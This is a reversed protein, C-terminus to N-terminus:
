TFCDFAVHDMCALADEVGFGLGGVGSGLRNCAFRVREEQTDLGIFYM